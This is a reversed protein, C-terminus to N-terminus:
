FTPYFSRGQGGDVLFCSGAAFSSKQSTLFIVFDSIEQENGFRKIAVREDLYKKVSKPEKKGKIDWYGNKTLIPGPMVATMVIKKSSLYRGVSRVYANVASKASCYPPTGQNELASISSIHCIRGWKKRIMSPIFINNLIIGVELNLQFVKKWVSLDSLPDKLNLDGGVNNIIIDPFIKENKLKNAAKKVKDNNSLDIKIQRFNKSVIEKTMTRTLSIVKANNKIYNKSIDLGIGGSGGTILVIKKKFDFEM